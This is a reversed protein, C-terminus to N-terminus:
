NSSDVVENMSVTYKNLNFPDNYQQNKVNTINLNSSQSSIPSKVRKYPNFPVSEYPANMGKISFDLSQEM